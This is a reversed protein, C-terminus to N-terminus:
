YIGVPPGDVWDYGNIKPRIFIDLFGNVDSFFDQIKEIPSLCLFCKFEGIIKVFIGRDQIFVGPGSGNKTIKETIKDIAEM